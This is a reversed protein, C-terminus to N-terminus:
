RLEQRGVRSPQPAGVFDTVAASKGLEYGIWFKLAAYCFRHSIDQIEAVEVKELFHNTCHTHCGQDRTGVHTVLM